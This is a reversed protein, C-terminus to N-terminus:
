KKDEPRKRFDERVRAARGARERLYHLKARRVKGRRVVKISEISPSHLPLIREVGQGQVVRRVTITERIGGGKRAICIGHFTQVREKGAERIRIGVDLMDGVRFPPINDKLYPKEVMRLLDQGKPQDNQKSM